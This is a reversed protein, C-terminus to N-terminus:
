RFSERRYIIRDNGRSNGFIAVGELTDPDSLWLPQDPQLSLDVKYPVRLPQKPAGLHLRTLGAAVQALSAGPANNGLGIGISGNTFTLSQSAAQYSQEPDSFEYGSLDLSTCYDQENLQWDGRYFEVEQKLSLPESDVGQETAVKLRGYRLEYQGLLKADCADREVCDGTLAPNMDLDVLQSKGGDRDDIRLGFELAILPDEPADGRDFRTNLLLKEGEERKAQYLGAAWQNSPSMAIRESLDKGNKQNAAVLTIDSKAFEDRYNYTVGGMKNRASLIFASNFPQSMYVFNACTSYLEAESLAFDWPVIRGVPESRAPDITYGFYTEKPTATLRFVGVDDLSQDMSQISGAARQHHYSKIEVGANVGGQPAVVESGLEINAMEFNPTTGNGSCIDNDGEKEWAMASITMPFVEGAKRFINCSVDGAKCVGQETAICLGVPRTVFIGGGEQSEMELGSEVGTGDYRASVQVQGADPYRVALPAEGQANFQLPLTVPSSGVVSGNISVQNGFTNENPLVYSSSLAVNKTVNAFGPVCRQSTDDKKVAKLLGSLPENAYGDPIEVVFGSDAFTLTCSDASPSGGAMRCLTESYPKTDPESSAVGITVDGPKNGRLDVTVSGGTFTVDAGGVWQGAASNNDLSLHVTVPETILETCAKNACARITVQEPSCTLGQGGHVLEFHDVLTGVPESVLACVEINDVEHNNFKKATSGTLSLIFREPLPAQGTQSLVDFPKILSEFGNEGGVDRRVSVLAQSPDRSDYTIEYRHYTNADGGITLSEPSTGTLYRYGEKEKGSGRIAVSPKLTKRQNSSGGEQYFNGYEDLGIGLWGGAFGNNSSDYGYGLPGGFAGPAPTVSADSLVLAMGDAGTTTSGYAYHNFTIIILNEAAPFHWLYTSSTAQDQVAETLRLRGNVISPTFNGKSVKSVWNESLAGSFDEKLCTLEPEPDPDPGPEPEPEPPEKDNVTAHSNMKLQRATLRGNVIANNEMLIVEQSYIFGNFTIQNGVTFNQHSMWVLAGNNDANVKTQNNIALNANTYIYTDGGSLKIEAGSISGSSVTDIYYHGHGFILVPNNSLSLTKIRVQGNPFTLKCRDNVTVQSYDGPELTLAGDGPCTASGGSFSPYLNNATDGSGLVNFLGRISEGTIQCEQTGGKGDDCYEKKNPNASIDCFNLAKGGTGNIQVENDLVLQPTYGKKDLKFCVSESDGHHGQVVAPFITKTDVTNGYSWAFVHLPLVALCLWFFRM